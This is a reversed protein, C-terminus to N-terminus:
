PAAEEEAAPAPLPMEREVVQFGIREMRYQEDDNFVLKLQHGRGVRRAMVTFGDRIPEAAAAQASRSLEHFPITM